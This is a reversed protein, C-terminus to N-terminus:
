VGLPPLLNQAQDTQQTAPQPHTKREFDDIKKQLKQSARRERWLQVRLAWSYFAVFLAGSIFGIMLLVLGVVSLPQQAVVGDLPWLAVDVPLPNSLVFSLVFLTLPLTIILSLVRM